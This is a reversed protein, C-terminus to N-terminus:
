IQAKSERHSKKNRFYVVYWYYLAIFSSVVFVHAMILTDLWDSSYVNFILHLVYLMIGILWYYGYIKYYLKLGQGYPSEWDKIYKGRIVSGISQVIGIFPLAYFWYIGYYFIDEM